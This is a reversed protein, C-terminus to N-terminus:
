PAPLTSDAITCCGVEFILLIDDLFTIHLHEVAAPVAQLVRALQANAATGAM